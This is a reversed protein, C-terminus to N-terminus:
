ESPVSLRRFVVPPPVATVPPPLAAVAKPPTAMTPLAASAAACPTHCYLSDPPAQTVMPLAPAAGLSAAASIRGVFALRRKRGFTVWKLPVGPARVTRTASLACLKLADVLMLPLTMLLTSLLGSRSSDM